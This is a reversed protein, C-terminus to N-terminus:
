GVQQWTGEQRAFLFRVLGVLFALHIAVLYYGLLAFRIRSLSKRLVFGAAAWGYFGLQAVMITRYFPSEWLAWNSALLGIMSFPLIWRLVKHSLFALYTAPDLHMGIFHRLQRFSGVALRVRRTFEGEVSPAAFDIAVAEPDHVVRYGLSRAQMPIVFDDLLVTRHLPVYCSRRLAYIAGSAQLNIGMRSELLRLMCEYKWYTGETEDSERTGQFQLAGCVVGVDPHVFHRVLKRLADRAFLTAADSFVLIDSNARAVAENLATAKGQRDPLLVVDINEDKAASLIDNTDDTSGDSVFIVHLRDAPYDLSRINAIKDPLRQEENHAPVILTIRPPADQPIAARRRDRRSNLYQWDRAAQVVASAFFLLMPYLVYTYAILFGSAWFISIAATM